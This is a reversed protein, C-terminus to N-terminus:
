LLGLAHPGRELVMLQPGHFGVKGDVMIGVGLVELLQSLFSAQGLSHQLYAGVGEKGEISLWGCCLIM